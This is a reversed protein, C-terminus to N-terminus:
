KLRTVKDVWKKYIEAMTYGALGALTGISLLVVCMILYYM